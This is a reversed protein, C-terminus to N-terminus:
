HGRWGSQADDHFGRQPSGKRGVEDSDLEMGHRRARSGREAGRPRRSAPIEAPAVAEVGHPLEGKEENPQWV